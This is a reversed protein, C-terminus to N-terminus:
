AAEFVLEDQVSKAQLVVSATRRELHGACDRLIPLRCACFGPLTPGSGCAHSPREHGEDVSKQESKAIM